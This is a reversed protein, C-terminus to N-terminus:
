RFAFRGRSSISVDGLGKQNIRISLVAVLGTCDALKGAGLKGAGLKGAGYKEVLDDQLSAVFEQAPVTRCSARMLREVACEM